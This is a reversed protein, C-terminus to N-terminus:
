AGRIAHPERLAAIEALLQEAVRVAHLIGQGALGGTVALLPGHYHYPGELAWWAVAELVFVCIGILTLAWGVARMSTLAEM